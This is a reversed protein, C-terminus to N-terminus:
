LDTKMTGAITLGPMGAGGERTKGKADVAEPLGFLCQIQIYRTLIIDVPGSLRMDPLM